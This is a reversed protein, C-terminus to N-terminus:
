RILGYRISGYRRLGSIGCFRWQTYKLLQNLIDKGADSEETSLGDKFAKIMDDGLFYNADTCLQAVTDVITKYPVQRM